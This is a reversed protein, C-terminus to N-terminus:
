RPEGGNIGKSLKELRADFTPDKTRLASVRKIAHMVTTHDKGDFLSGIEKL